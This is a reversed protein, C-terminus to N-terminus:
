QALVNYAERNQDIIKKSLALLEEDSVREVRDTKRIEFPIGQYDVSSRLFVTIASSMNLGLDSFLIEAQRKLDEDIRINLNVTAMNIMEKEKTYAIFALNDICFLSNKM